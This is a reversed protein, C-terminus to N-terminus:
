RRVGTARRGTGRATTNTVRGVSSVDAPVISCDCRDHGFDASEATAYTQGAVTQCWACANASPVRNWRMEVGSREAFVDGTRRSTSQVFDFGVASAQSQGVRVADEYERGMNLAHWSALFPHRIRPEVPVDDPHLPAAPVSAALAFFGTSTAVTAQKVGALLPTAQRIFAAVAADDTIDSIDAWLAVLVSSARSRYRGILQQYRRIAADSVPM